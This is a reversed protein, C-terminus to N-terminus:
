RKLVNKFFDPYTDVANKLEELTNIARTGTHLSEKGDPDFILMSSKGYIVGSNGNPSKYEITETM